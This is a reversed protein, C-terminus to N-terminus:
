MIILKTGSKIVADEELSNIAAIREPATKYKKAIDWLTDGDTAFYVTLPARKQEEDKYTVDSIINTCDSEM